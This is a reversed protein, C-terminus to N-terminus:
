REQLTNLGVMKGSRMGEGGGGGGCGERERGGGTRETVGGHRRRRGEEWPMAGDRIERQGLGGGGMSEREEEGRARRGKGHGLVTVEGGRADANEDGDGM